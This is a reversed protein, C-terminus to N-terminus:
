QRRQDRRDRVQPDGAYSVGAAAVLALVPASRRRDRGQLAVVYERWLRAFIAGRPRPMVDRKPITRGRISCATPTFSSIACVPTTSPANPRAKGPTTPPRYNPYAGVFDVASLDAFEPRTSRGEDRRRHRPSLLQRSHREHGKAAPRSARIPCPTTREILLPHLAAGAAVVGPARPIRTSQVGAARGVSRHRTRRCSRRHRRRRRYGMRAQLRVAHDADGM